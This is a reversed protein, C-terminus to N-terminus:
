ARQIINVFELIQKQIKLAFDDIKGNLLHYASYAIIGVILGSGSSIMKEYLGGSINGISINETVSISYFIKIVGSITGIFGLTPAIGAILGLHGLRREMEGIEIDAARDMNSEIEAIPRGIVLVGEKLINGAATNSREVITRALEINGANLKDGVDQMLRSDIKSAKSIYMYREFIIYITYFLLLAIPILFFGGKLIFGLVSIETNPAIKEIVVNSANAITDTQLQILSFM